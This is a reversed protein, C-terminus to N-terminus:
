IHIVGDPVVLPFGRGHVLVSREDVLCAKTGLAMAVLVYVGHCRFVNRVMVKKNAAERAM